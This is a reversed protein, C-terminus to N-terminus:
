TYYINKNHSLIMQVYAKCSECTMKKPNLKSYVKSDETIKYGCMTYNHNYFSSLHIVKDESFKVFKLKYPEFTKEDEERIDSENKM